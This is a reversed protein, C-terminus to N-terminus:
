ETSRPSIRFYLDAHNSESPHIVYEGEEREDNSSQLMAKPASPPARGVSDRRHDPTNEYKERHRPNLSSGHFEQGSRHSREKERPRDYSRDRQRDRDFGKDRSDQDKHKRKPPGNDFYAARWDRPQDDAERKSKKSASSRDNDHDLVRKEPPMTLQDQIHYTSTV